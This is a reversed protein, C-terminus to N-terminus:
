VNVDSAFCTLPGGRFPAFGTGMIMAFDIDDKSEVVREALIKHSEDVMSQVLKNQITKIDITDDTKKRIAKGKKYKYFGEGSKKGLFGDAILEQLTNPVDGGLHPLRTYLDVAVHQCIDLGIEDMLRFPGMPMGWKVMANDIESMEFGDDLMNCADILYPVLIRNVVFGPRDKVVIPMKGISQIFKIAREITEPNTHTGKVIEVLQMKHVPNFFHIGILREPHKLSAAMDDISLASTNTAIIAEKSIKDEIGALVKQKVDLKEVIAEILLDTDKLSVDDSTVPIVNAIGDRATPRDFKHKHVGQVFLDGITKMGKAAVEKNVEKLYVKRGKSAFWQAIGAGMTGAGIVTTTNIPMDDVEYLSYKKYKEQLFFIRLCNRMAETKILSLFAEKEKKLSDRRSLSQCESLVKIIKLPAPYNGKTKQMVSSKAKRFAVIGALQNSWVKPERKKVKGSRILEVATDVMYERHQIKDIMGKKLAPKAAQPSGGLIVQLTNILGILGPLRTTGGWAPLIGLNVEPLGIKADESAIRYNCALSLEYGGGLCIGNICAVTPIKLDEIRNFTQQGMNIVEGLFRDDLDLLEKMEFLDAGALFIKDKKSSFVVGDISEEDGTAQFQEVFSLVDNLETFLKKNLSNSNLEIHLISARKCGNILKTTLCETGM